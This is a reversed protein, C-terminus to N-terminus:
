GNKLTFSIGGKAHVAAVYHCYHKASSNERALRANAASLPSFRSRFRAGSDSPLDPRISEMSPVGPQGM